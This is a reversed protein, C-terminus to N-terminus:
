CVKKEKGKEKTKNLHLRGNHETYYITSKKLFFISRLLRTIKIVLPRTLTSSHTNLLDFTRNEGLIFIKVKCSHPLLIGDATVSCTVDFHQARSTIHIDRHLVVTTIDELSGFDFILYTKNNKSSNGRSYFMIEAAAYM